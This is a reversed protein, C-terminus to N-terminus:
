PETRANASTEPEDFRFLVEDERVMGADRAVREVFAPDSQFRRRMTRLAATERAIRTNEAEAEARRRQLERISHCKPIFVCLLGVVILVLLVGWLSRYIVTWPSM